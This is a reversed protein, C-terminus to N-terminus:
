GTGKERNRRIDEIISERRKCKKADKENMM